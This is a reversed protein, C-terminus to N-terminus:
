SRGTASTAFQNKFLIIKDYIIRDKRKVILLEHEDLSLLEFTDLSKMATLFETGNSFLSTCVNCYHAFLNLKNTVKRCKELQPKTNICHVCYGEDILEEAKSLQM